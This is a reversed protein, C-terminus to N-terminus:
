ENFYTLNITSLENTFTGVPHGIQGVFNNLLNDTLTWNENISTLSLILTNADNTYRFPERRYLIQNFDPASIAYGYNYLDPAVGGDVDYGAVYASIVRVTVSCNDPPGVAIAPGVPRDVQPNDALSVIIEIVEITSDVILDVSGRLNDKYADLRRYGDCVGCQVVGTIDTINGILSDVTVTAGPVPNGNVDIVRVLRFPCEGTEPLVIPDGIDPGPDEPPVATLPPGIPTVSLQPLDTGPDLIPIETKGEFHFNEIIITPASATSSSSINKTITIGPRIFNYLSVGLDIDQTLLPIFDEDARYRYDIYITRGLNGLRARVTKKVSDIINFNTLAYNVSYKKYSFHPAGGRIAVSNPIRESDDKGDRLIYGDYGVSLAYCGTSDFGVGLLGGELGTRANTNYTYSGSPTYYTSVIDPRDYRALDLGQTYGLGPGPTGGVIPNVFANQLFFLFGFETESTINELYYDFSWVIDYFPTVGQECLGISAASLSLVPYEM